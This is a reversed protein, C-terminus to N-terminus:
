LGRFLHPHATELGALTKEEFNRLVEADNMLAIQDEETLIFLSTEPLTLLGALNLRRSALSRNNPNIKWSIRLAEIAGQYDEISARAWALAVWARANGPDLNVAAELADVAEYARYKLVGPSAPRAVVSEAGPSTDTSVLYAYGRQYEYQGLDYMFQSDLLRGEGVITNSVLRPNFAPTKVLTAYAVSTSFSFLVLMMFRALRM